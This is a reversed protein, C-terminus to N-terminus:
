LESDFAIYATPNTMTNMMGAQGLTRATVTVDLAASSTDLSNASIASATDNGSGSFIGFNSATSNSLTPATRLTVPMGFFVRCVTTAVYVGMGMAMYNTGGYRQYYRQCAALETEYTSTNPSYATASSAIELQVGTIEFYDNAGATGTPNFNFAIGIETATAGVSASYSFRQWTTTLTANQNIIATNGTYGALVRQDTGTGTNLTYNLIDSTPSYNAGKRAYFSLTVTKGAYQISNITEFSQSVQIANTLASGATRQIRACYQINPLNTTDGTVQRTATAVTGNNYCQWRDATYTYAGFAVSTGRQWIQFASNLVGNKGAVNSSGASASAWKLGTATTSDATLVTDNSGVALRAFTDAATGAVLDGKADIATAMSNTITVTGSTGGGSIGVGATVGEIDGTAGSAAWASGTYYWLSNNDKTYAFQGEQPSTIAADRAAESAFVLVGQMLYGNVDAATLVEGTTFTKFGQGAAM